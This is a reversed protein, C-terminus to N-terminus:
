KQSEGQERPSYSHCRNYRQQHIDDNEPKRHLPKVHNTVKAEAISLIFAQTILPEKINWQNYICRFPSRPHCSLARTLCCHIARVRTILSCIIRIRGAHGFALYLLIDNLPFIVTGQSGNHLNQVRMCLSLSSSLSWCTWLAWVGCYSLSEKSCVWVASAGRHSEVAGCLAADGVCSLHNGAHPEVDEYIM